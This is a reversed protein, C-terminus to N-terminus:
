TPRALGCFILRSWQKRVCGGMAAEGQTYQGLEVRVVFSLFTSVGPLIHTAEMVPVM